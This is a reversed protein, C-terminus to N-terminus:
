EGCNTKVTAVDTKAPDLKAATPKELEPTIM